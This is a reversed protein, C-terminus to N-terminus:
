RLDKKSIAQKDLENDLKFNLNHSGYVSKRLACDFFGSAGAAVACGVQIGAGDVTEPIKGSVDRKGELFHRRSHYFSVFFAQQLFAPAM